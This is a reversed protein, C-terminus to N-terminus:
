HPSPQSDLPLLLQIPIEGGPIWSSATKQFGKRCTSWGCCGGLQRLKGARGEWGSHSWGPTKLPAHEDVPFSHGGECAITEEAAITTKSIVGVGWFFVFCFFVPCTHIPTFETYKNKWLDVSKESKTKKHEALTIEQTCTWLGTLSKSLAYKFERHWKMCVRQRKILRETPFVHLFGVSVHCWPLILGTFVYVYMCSFLHVYSGQTM